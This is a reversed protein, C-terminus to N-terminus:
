DKDELLKEFYEFNLIFKYNEEVLAVKSKIYDKFNANTTCHM